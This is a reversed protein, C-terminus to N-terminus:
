NASCFTRGESSSRAPKKGPELEVDCLVIFIKNSLKQGKSLIKFFNPRSHTRNTVWITFRGHHAVALCCLVGVTVLGEGRQLLPFGPVGVTVLGEGRQLLPFGTVPLGVTILDKCRIRIQIKSYLFLDSGTFYYPDKPDAYM